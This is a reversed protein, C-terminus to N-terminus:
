FAIRIWIYIVLTSCQDLTGGKNYADLDGEMTRLTPLALIPLEEPELMMMRVVKGTEWHCRTLVGRKCRRSRTPSVGM